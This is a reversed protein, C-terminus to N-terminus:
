SAFPDIHLGQLVSIAERIPLKPLNFEAALVEEMEATSQLISHKEAGDISRITLKSNVLSLSRNQEPQWLQCRLSKMFTAGPLNSREVLESFHDFERPEDPTFTWEDSIVEGRRYRIFRYRGPQTRDPVLCVQEVGFASVNEPNHQFRVPKFFPAAAGCDVYVMEGDLEPLQVLIAMHDSGVEILCGSFGLARLLQLLSSNVTYCTGGCDFRFSNEVFIGVPPIFYGNKHKDRYYLLKSINEFPIVSLHARCIEELYALTPRNVGLGLRELYRLGWAPLQSM